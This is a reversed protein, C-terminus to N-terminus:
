SQVLFLTRFECAGGSASVGRGTYCVCLVGECPCCLYTIVCPYWLMHSQFYRYEVLVANKVFVLRNDKHIQTTQTFAHQAHSTHAALADRGGATDALDAGIGKSTEEFERLIM